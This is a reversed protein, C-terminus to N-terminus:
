SWNARGERVLALQEPHTLLVTIAQDLLNVTTEYGASIMLLLTDRLEAESLASGDGEEDRADILLSTMDEGPQE